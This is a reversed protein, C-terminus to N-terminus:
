AEGRRRSNTKLVSKEQPLRLSGGASMPWGPSSKSRCNGGNLVISNCLVRVENLPNGDKGEIGTLRYVFLHDLLLVALNL